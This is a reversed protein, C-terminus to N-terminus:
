EAAAHAPAQAFDALLPLLAPLDREAQCVLYQAAAPPEDCAGDTAETLLMGDPGLPFAALGLNGYVRLMGFGARYVAADLGEQQALDRLRWIASTRDSESGAPDGLGLLVRGVRRFPIAARGAEGWVVGDARAPPDGGLQAYRLREEAGWALWAVRGPRILRWTALLGIGVLCAVTLRLSNPIDRSLVIEWWSNTTLQRLHREFASLMLVSVILAFLPVATAAQLPGSFLWAHRYFASRFPAILFATITLVVPIWFRFGQAATFASAVLLLGITAGWALTVRQSLGVALVLLAAGILSPVFQGAAAAYDSYDPDIWSLDPTPSLAGLALLMAACLAVAGAAAGVAFDPESWRPGAVMAAPQGPRALIARGRLLIENGAFLGGALFLPIIYYYLRFVVIAGVIRPADVYPALGLLMATDFVGIGGPLNAALGATYSTVYVALFRLFTLGPAAPLLSQFIAATVAVDVTALLVQLVAMRLGPLIIDHGFIKVQGVVQSLTLYGGVLVWLLAGVGRLAWVSMRDGFFPVATPEVFLIAGGLVLGGLAFTL